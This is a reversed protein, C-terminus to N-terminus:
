SKVRTFTQTQSGSGLVFQDNSKWEFPLKQVKGKTSAARSMFAQEATPPLGTLTIDGTTVSLNKDDASWTNQSTLTINQPGSVGLQALGPGFDLQGKATMVVTQDAKFTAVMKLDKSNSSSDIQWTGVFSKEAPKCSVLAIALVLALCLHKHM